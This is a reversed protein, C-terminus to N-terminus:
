IVKYVEPLISLHPSVYWWLTTLLDYLNMHLVATATSTHSALNRLIGCIEPRLTVAPSRLRKELCGFINAQAVAVATSEHSALISLIRFIWPCRWEATSSHELMDSLCDLLKTEMSVGSTVLSLNIQSDRSLVWLAGDVVQPIYSNSIACILDITAFL